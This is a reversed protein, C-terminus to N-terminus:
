WRRQLSEILKKFSLCRSDRISWAAMKMLAIPKDAVLHGVLTGDFSILALRELDKSDSNCADSSVLECKVQECQFYRAVFAEIHATLEPVAQCRVASEYFEVLGTDMM